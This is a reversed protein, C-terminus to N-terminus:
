NLDEDDAAHRIISKFIYAKQSLKKIMMMLLVSFGMLIVAKQLIESHIRVSTSRHKM